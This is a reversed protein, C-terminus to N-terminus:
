RRISLPVIVAETAVEPRYFLHLGAAAESPIEFTISGSRTTHTDIADYFPDAGNSRASFFDGGAGTLQFFTSQNRIVSDSSNKVALDVDIVAFNQNTGPQQTVGNVTLIRDSLVV